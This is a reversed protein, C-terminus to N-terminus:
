EKVGPSKQISASRSTAPMYPHFSPSFRQYVSPWAEQPASGLINVTRGTSWFHLLVASLNKIEVPEPHQLLFDALVEEAVYMSGLRDPAGASILLVNNGSRDKKRIPERLKAWEARVSHVSQYALGVEMGTMTFLPSTPVGGVFPTCFFAVDGPAEVARFGATLQAPMGNETSYTYHAPDPQYASLADILQDVAAEDNRRYPLGSAQAAMGFWMYVTHGTLHSIRHRQQFALKARVRNFLDHSLRRSEISLTTLEWGSQQGNVHVLADPPDSGKEAAQFLDAGKALKADVGARQLHFLELQWKDPEDLPRTPRLFNVPIENILIRIPQGQSDSGYAGMVLPAGWPSPLMITGDVTIAEEAFLPLLTMYGTQPPAAPGSGDTM